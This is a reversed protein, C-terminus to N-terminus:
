KGETNEANKATKWGKCFSLLHREEAGRQARAKESFWISEGRIPIHVSEVTTGSREKVMAYIEAARLPNLLPAAILRAIVEGDTELKSM